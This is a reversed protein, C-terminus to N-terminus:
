VIRLSNQENVSAILSWPEMRMCRMDWIHLMVLGPFTCAEASAMFISKSKSMAPNSDTSFILNLKEGYKECIDPMKATAARNPAMLLLDDAFAVAGVWLGAM